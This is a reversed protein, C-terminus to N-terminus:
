IEHTIFVGESCASIQARPPVGEPVQKELMLCSSGLNLSEENVTMRLLGALPPVGTSAEALIERVTSYAEVQGLSHAAM